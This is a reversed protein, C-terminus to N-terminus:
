EDLAELVNVLKSLRSSSLAESALKCVQKHLGRRGKTLNVIKEICSLMIANDTINWAIGTVGIVQEQENFSPVLKAYYTTEDVNVVYDIKEGRLALEHKELSVQKIVPCSFMEALCSADDCAFDNGRQSVIIGEKTVSWITVPIPFNEFFGEFLDHDYRMQVDRDSLEKVLTKLRAINSPSKDNNM